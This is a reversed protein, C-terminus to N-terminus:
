VKRVLPLVAEFRWPALSALAERDAAGAPAAPVAAEGAKEYKGVGPGDPPAM